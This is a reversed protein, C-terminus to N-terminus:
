AFLYFDGGAPCEVKLAFQCFDSTTRCHAKRSGNRLWLPPKNWVTACPLLVGLCPWGVSAKPTRQRWAQYQVVMGRKACDVPSSLISQHMDVGAASPFGQAPISLSVGGSRDVSTLSRSQLRFIFLLHENTNLVDGEAFVIYKTSQIRLVPVPIRPPV